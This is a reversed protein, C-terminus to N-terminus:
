HTFHERRLKWCRAMAKPLVVVKDYNKEYSGIPQLRAILTDTASVAARYSIVVKVNESEIATFRLSIM